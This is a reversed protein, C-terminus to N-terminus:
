LGGNSNSIGASDGRAVTLDGFDTGNSTTAYAISEMFNQYSGSIGGGYVGRTSNGTGFCMGTSISMTGFSAANAATAMTVFDIINSYNGAIERGCWLGRISNSFGAVRIHNRTLDGFSVANGLTATNVYQIDDVEASTYGGGVISRTPSSVGGTGYWQAILSGFSAANALTSINIYEIASTINGSISGGHILGRTSNNTGCCEAKATILDGFDTTNSAAMITTYEITNRYNNGTVYGAAVIGRTSSACGAVYGKAEAVLDGFDTANSAVSIEIYDITNVYGGSAQGGQILGRGAVSEGRYRTLRFYDTGDSAYGIAGYTEAIVDDGVQNDFKETSSRKIYIPNVAAFGAVDKIFVSFLNAPTPLTIEIPGSTSDVLITKGNDGSVVTYNGTKVSSFGASAFGAGGGGGGGGGSGGVIRWANSVTDRYIIVSAGDAVELDAGTGTIIQEGGPAGGDENRFTVGAGTANIWVFFRGKSVSELSRISTLSANTMRIGSKTPLPMAQDAGTLASNTQVDLDIANLFEKNGAFSQGTISVGGPHTGSAPQMNLVQGTISLGNANPTSGFASLTLDGTNTGSLNDASIDGDFFKNGSINLNSNLYNVTVFDDGTAPPNALPAEDQDAGSNWQYKTVYGSETTM